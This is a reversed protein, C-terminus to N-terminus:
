AAGSLLRVRIRLRSASREVRQTSRPPYLGQGAQPVPESPHRLKVDTPSSLVFAVQLGDGRRVPRKVRGVYFGTPRTKSWPVNPKGM